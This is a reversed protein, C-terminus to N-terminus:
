QSCQVGFLSWWAIRLRSSWSIIALGDNLPSCRPRWAPTVMETGTEWGAGTMEPGERTGAGQRAKRRGFGWGRRRARTTTGAGVVGPGGVGAGAGRPPGCCAECFGCCLIAAILCALGFFVLEFVGIMAAVTGVFFSILIGM